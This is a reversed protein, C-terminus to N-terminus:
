PNKRLSFKFDIGMDAVADRAKKANLGSSLGSQIDQTLGQMGLIAEITKNDQELVIPVLRELQFDNIQGKFFGLLAPEVNQPALDQLKRVFQHALEHNLNSKIIQVDVDFTIDRKPKSAHLHALMDVMGNSALVASLPLGSVLPAKCFGPYKELLTPMYDACAAYADLVSTHSGNSLGCIFADIPRIGGSSRTDVKAGSALLYDMSKTSSWFSAYHLLTWNDHPKFNPDDVLKSLNVADDAILADFIAQTQPSVVIQLVKDDEFGIILHKEIEEISVEEGESPDDNDIPQTAVQIKKLDSYVRGRVSHMKLLVAEPESPNLSMYNLQIGHAGNLMTKAWGTVNGSETAGSMRLQTFFDPKGNADISANMEDYGFSNWPVISSDSTWWQDIMQDKIKETFTDKTAMLQFARDRMVTSKPYAKQLSLFLAADEQALNYDVVLPSQTNMSVEYQRDRYFGESHLGRDSPKDVHQGNRIRFDQLNEPNLSRAVLYCEEYDM